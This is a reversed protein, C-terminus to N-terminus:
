FFVVVETHTLTTTSRGSLHESAGGKMRKKITGTLQHSSGTAGCDWESRMPAAAIIHSTCHGSFHNIATSVSSFRLRYFVELVIEM